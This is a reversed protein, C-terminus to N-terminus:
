ANLIDQALTVLALQDQLQDSALWARWTPPPPHPFHPSQLAVPCSFICHELNAYHEPCNPCAPSHIIRYLFSRAPTLLTNLQIRRLIRIQTTTLSKDPLPLTRLTERINDYHVNIEKKYHLTTDWTPPYPWPIGPARHQLERALRHVVENGPIGAHGPIWRLTVTHPRLKTLARHLDDHLEEPIRGTHIARIAQISDTYITYGSPNPPAQALDQISTVIPLTELTATPPPDIYPGLTHTVVDSCSQISYAAAGVNTRSADTYIITSDTPHVHNSVRASRRGTNTDPAVNKPIPIIRLNDPLSSPLTIIPLDIPKLAVQQLIWHGQKTSSLRAMQRDRHQQILDGLPLFLGTSYLRETSTHVPVNLAAKYLIHLAVEIQHRQRCTLTLYPITYLIKSLALAHVLQRVQGERLGAHKNVIRRVLHTLQNCVKVTTSVNAQNTSEHIHLGLIRCSSVRPIPHGAMTLNILQNHQRQYRTKAILLLESKEPAPSLGVKDLYSVVADIGQQLTEEVAGPSGSTCWLTLDDAYFTHKLNPISALTRSLPAMALNFLTPSLIAGQPTGRTLPFPDSISDPLRFKATRDRLFATLYGYMKPGCGTSALINLLPDHALNDFAKRVDLAVIAQIQSTPPPDFEHMLLFFLDQTSVGKRFGIQQPPFFDISELHTELRNLVMREMTKGLCSTLSVPRLNQLATKKGPKPLLTILSQKWSAPLTSEEWHLNIISLFHEKDKDSLNRILSYTIQDEGPVSKRKLQELAWDLDWLTFPQDLEVNSAGTYPTYLSPLPPPIYLDRLQATLADAGLQSYHKELTPVPAPQPGLLERLLHWTRKQNLTGNITNCIKNWQNTDLTVCHEKVQRTLETVRDSLRANNPQTRLTRLLRKRRKWIRVLYPDPNDSPASTSSEQTAQKQAHKLAKTWSQLSGTTHSTDRITRFTNWNTHSIKRKRPRTRSPVTINIIYHDSLLKEDTVQWTVERLGRGVTLDPMTSQQNRYGERTISNPTNYVTLQAGNLADNLIRGPRFTHPYGWIVHPANFDGGILFDSDRFLRSTFHMLPKFLTYETPPNYFNLISLPRSLHDSYLTFAILHRELRSPVEIAEFRIDRRIYTSVLPACDSDHAAHLARYGPIGKLARSEQILIVHPQSPLTLLWQIFLTRNTRLNRSNWQVIHIHNNGAM